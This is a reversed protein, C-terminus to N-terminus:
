AATRGLHRFRTEVHRFNLESLALVVATALAVWGVHQLSPPLAERWGRQALAKFALFVSSHVLYISYSRAGIWVLFGKLFPPMGLYGRDLSALAVLVGSAIATLTYSAAGFAGVGILPISFLMLYSAFWASRGLPQFLHQEVATRVTENAYLWALLVGICFAEWRFFGGLAPFYVHVPVALILLAVMVWKARARLAVLMVPLAIYFQEELSLSWYVGVALHSCVGAGTMCSYAHYNYVQMLAAAVDYINATLAGRDTLAVVGLGIFAWLWSSPWLRYVRRVWFQSVFRVRAALETLARATPILNKSIVFGSIVFFLDVGGHFAVKKDMWEVWAPTEAYTFRYHAVLTYLIAFARLCEIDLIKDKAATSV